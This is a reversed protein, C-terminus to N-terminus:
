GRAFWRGATRWAALAWRGFLPPRETLNIWREAIEIGCGRCRQRRVERAVADLVEARRGAAWPIRADWEDPAPVYISVIVRKGGFEWDFAHSHGGERYHVVGARGHTVIEVDPRM